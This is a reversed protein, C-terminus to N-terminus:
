LYVFHPEKWWARLLWLSPLGILFSPLSTLFSSLSTLFVPLFTVLLFLLYVLLSPLYVLSSTLYVLSSPFSVLLYDGSHSSLWCPLIFFSGHFCFGEAWVLATLSAGLPCPKQMCRSSNVLCRGIALPPFSVGPLFATITHDMTIPRPGPQNLDHGEQSCPSGAEEGEKEAQLTGLSPWSRPPIQPACFPGWRTYLACKKVYGVLGM